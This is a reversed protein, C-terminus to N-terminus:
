ITPPIRAAWPRALELQRALRLLLADAGPAGVFHSGIPLGSRSWQLPVSVAPAGMHNVLPTYSFFDRQRRFVERPDESEADLWGITPPLGTAMPSLLADFGQAEQWQAVLASTLQLRGLNVLYDSASLVRGQEWLLQVFRGADRIAGPQGRKQDVRHIATCISTAWHLWIAQLTDGHDIPLQANVVEHGLSACLAATDDIAALVEPDVTTDALPRRVLGIRLKMPPRELDEFLRAGQNRAAYLAGTVPASVADLLAANDRVSISVFGSTTTGGPSELVDPGMPVLGRTPKLGFVGCFAAPVRISGAGDGAHGALVMRAAVSAAAGGSSGGASHALHWPNRTAGYLPPQTEFMAGFEAANTRGLVTLGAAQLRTVLDSTRAAVNTALIRSGQTMPHGAWATQADKLLFPVGAFLAEQPLPDDASALAEEFFRLVVSNIQRDDRVINDIAQQLVERRSIEGRRILNALDICDAAGWFRLAHDEM